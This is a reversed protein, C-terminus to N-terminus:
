WFVVVLARKQVIRVHSERTALLLACFVKEIRLMKRHCTVEGGGVLRAAGVAASDAGGGGGRFGGRGWRQWYRRAGM